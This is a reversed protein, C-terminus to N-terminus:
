DLDLITLPPPTIHRLLVGLRRLAREMFPRAPHFGRTWETFASRNSSWLEELWSTYGPTGPLPVLQMTNVAGDTSAVAASPPASAALHNAIVRMRRLQTRIAQLERVRGDVDREHNLGLGTSHRQM